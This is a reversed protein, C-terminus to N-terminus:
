EALSKLWNWLPEISFKPDEPDSPSPMPTGPQLSQPDRLLQEFYSKQLRAPSTALDIGPWETSKENGADHCRVCGAEASRFFAKGKEPSDNKFVSGPRKAETKDLQDASAFLTAFPAVDAKRFVPMRAVLYPRVAGGGKEGHLIRNFWDPTLKAGVHDLGPPLNGWRGLAHANEDAFGFYVERSTEAGGIGSREHCAYCNLLKMRWDIEGATDPLHRGALRALSASIARKQVEDLGYFPIAGDIPRDSFCGSRQDTKLELLPRALHRTLGGKSGPLHHCATCNKETFLERGKDVLAADVEFPVSQTLAETLNGPLLLDPGAKLYAALDVAEKVSLKFDPMRGSPRHENPHLLFHTLTRLDYLDALNMPVSPLGAMEIEANEPLGAPRYGLEPAHCAVCGVRHYLSRGTEIDGVAYDPVEYTLTALFHKIAKVEELDRDPGAFLSPMTTDRKLFRPNRILIELDLHDLRTAAGTLDTAVTGTLQSALSEPPAHCAVCNLENLLILGGGALYDDDDMGSHFREFGVVFPYNVPKAHAPHAATQEAIGPLLLMLASILRLGRQDKRM